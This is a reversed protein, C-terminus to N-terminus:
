KEEFSLIKKLAEIEPPKVLHTDFGADESRRRDATQGFGSMAVMRVHDGGLEARVRAAVGCGDLLPLGIDVFAIAPRRRLILDVGEEGDKAAEVSHGMDELLEKMGERLDENDEVLVISLPAAEPPAPSV